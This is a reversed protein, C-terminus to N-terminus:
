SGYIGGSSIVQEVKLIDAPIDVGISPENVIIVKIKAGMHLARLQELSEAKELETPSAECFQKLFSKTYAYMGVHRYVLSSEVFFSQRSFPIPFRSFYIAQNYKNLIVKVANPSQFEEESHFAHALTAMDLKSSAPDQDLFSRALADITKGSILPEDGQINIVVECDLEKVAAFIRDTGTELDSDTMVFKCNLQQCAKAIREDDTAVVVDDLLESRRAAEIVWHIMPRGQILALPKGPFRTSAFRAPIVGLFKM